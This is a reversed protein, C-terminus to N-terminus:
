SPIDQNSAHRRLARRYAFHSSELILSGFFAAFMGDTFVEALAKDGYSLQQMAFVILIFAPFVAPLMGVFFVPRRVAATVVLAAAVGILYLTPVPWFGREILYILSVDSPFLFNFDYHFWTLFPVVLLVAAGGIFL